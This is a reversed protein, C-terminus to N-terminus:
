FVLSKLHHFALSQGGVRVNLDNSERILSFSQSRAKLRIQESFLYIPDSTIKTIVCSKYIELYYLKLKTDLPAGIGVFLHRM